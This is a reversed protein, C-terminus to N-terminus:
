AAKKAMDLAVTLAKDNSTRVPGFFQADLRRAVRQGATEGEKSNGDGHTARESWSNLLDWFSQGRNGRGHEFLNIVEAHVKTPKFESLNGIEGSKGNVREVFSYIQQKSKIQISDLFRFKEVDELTTNMVKLVAESVQSSKADAKGYHKKRFFGGESLAMRLNNRGLVREMCPGGVLGITEDHSHCFFAYPKIPDDKRIMLQEETLNHQVAVQCWIVAGGRLLGAAEIEHGAEVWPTLSSELFDKNQRPVYNPGVAGLERGMWYTGACTRFRKGGDTYLSEVTVEEDALLLQCVEDITLPETSGYGYKHWPLGAGERARYVMLAHSGETGEAVLQGDKVFILEHSM